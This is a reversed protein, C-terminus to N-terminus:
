NVFTNKSINKFKYFAVLTYLGIILSLYSFPNDYMMIIAGVASIMVFIISYFLVYHLQNNDEIRNISSLILVGCLVVAIGTMIFMYLMSRNLENNVDRMDNLFLPTTACHILGLILISIGGAKLFYLSNKM